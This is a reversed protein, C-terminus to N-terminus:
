ALIDWTLAGDAMLPTLLHRGIVQDLEAPAIGRGPRKAELMDRSLVTGAALDRAAVLSKLAWDLAPRECPQIILEARGLSAEVERISKVFQPFDRPGCSVKWDQANPVNFDLTIHKEILSAGMAVACLVAQHGATHDSYGVPGPFLRSLASMARLGVQENPTPYSTVCHLLALERCGASRLADLSQEVHAREHMGTSLLVPKGLAAIKKLFPLNGREGSGIKCAPPNLRAVWDLATEDHATCLFTLGRIKCREHMRELFSFGVEKSRLRDRWEPSSSAILRDTAFAQTKFADAGGEAALDVLADAKAPDGFHAVGAEAIIFVPAGPGIARGAIEIVSPFDQSM